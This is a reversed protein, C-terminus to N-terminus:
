DAEASSHEVMRMIVSPVCFGVPAGRVVPGWGNMGGSGAPGPPDCSAAERPLPDREVGAGPVTIEEEGSQSAM